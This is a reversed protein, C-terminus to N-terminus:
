AGHVPVVNRGVKRPLCALPQRAAQERRAAPLDAAKWPAAHATRPPLEERATRRWAQALQSIDAKM